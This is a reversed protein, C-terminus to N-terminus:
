SFYILARFYVKLHNDNESAFHLATRGYRDTMMLLEEGGVEILTSIIDLPVNKIECLCHLATRGYDGNIMILERGGLEILKSVIHMLKNGHKCAVHLATKGYEDITTLLEKGGVEILKTVIDLSMENEIADHLVSGHMATNALVLEKGGINILKLIAQESKQQHQNLVMVLSTCDVACMFGDDFSCKQMVKEYNGENEIEQLYQLLYDDSHDNIVEQITLSDIM